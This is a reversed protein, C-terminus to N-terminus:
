EDGAYDARVGTYFADKRDIAGTRDGVCRILVNFKSVPGQAFLGEVSFPDFGSLPTSFGVSPSSCRFAPVDRVKGTSSVYLSLCSM